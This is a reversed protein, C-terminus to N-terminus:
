CGDPKVIGDEDELLAGIYNDLYKFLPRNFASMPRIDMSSENTKTFCWGKGGEAIPKDFYVPERTNADITGLSEAIVIGDPVKELEIKPKVTGYPEGIDWHYEEFLYRDNFKTRIGIFGKNKANYVGYSLNRSHIRYLYGHKCQDLPIYHQEPYPNGWKETM